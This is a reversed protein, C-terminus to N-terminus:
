GDAQLLKPYSQRASHEVDTELCIEPIGEMIINVGFTSSMMEPTTDNRLKERLYKVMGDGTPEILIFTAVTDVKREVESQVNSRETVFMRTDLSGQVVQGPSKPIRM